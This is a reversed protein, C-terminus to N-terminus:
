ELKMWEGLIYDWKDDIFKGFGSAPYFTLEGFYVKGNVEYFDVRLFPENASLKEALEIMLDLNHPMQIDRQFDPPCIEEGCQIIHGSPDYYNARHKSFRDFDVKFCKVKGNFCFFKYDRLERTDNDEMYQECLIKRPIDRYSWERGIKFYDQKLGISLADRIASIDSPQLVSKDKCIYMGEGSNHNCKLVFQNPLDSFDIEESNDWAGIIPILYEQGITTAVYDRARYKDAMIVYQPKRNYLKLWQIKENFTRPTDLDLDAGMFAKFKKKLYKEDPMNDYLGINSLINFRFTPDTFLKFVSRVLKTANM